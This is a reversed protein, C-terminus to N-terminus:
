HQISNIELVKSTMQKNELITQYGIFGNQITGYVATSGTGRTICQM